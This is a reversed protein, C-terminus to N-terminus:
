PGPSTSCTTVDNSFQMPNGQNDVPQIRYYMCQASTYPLMTQTDFGRRPETAIIQTPHPAPGAYVQYYAVDTAGNWSYTLTVMQSEVKEVLMPPTTPTAHWSFRFARYTSNPAPMYMEFATSGDPKLETTVGATGWGIMRNGDPLIQVDGMALTYLDPTHRYQWVLTATMNREDVKYESAQSFYPQLGTRNDFLTIDGNPQRRVDHQYYFPPQNHDNIFTFQNHKGGMRWIIDGTQRNIKTIEALHRSSLLLNGDLDQQISNGHVYDVAPQTLDEYTDTIQFHDWSRWQFVVNKQSDLEQIVLGTVIAGPKGGPAVQSMDVYEPDYIMLLAHGNPLLRLDHLDAGNPYGNGATYTGVVNYSHDMAYFTGDTYYTLMGNPQLKFDAAMHDTRQYYVVHGAHDLILLYNNPGLPFPFSAVFFYGDEGADGPATVKLAPLDAPLSTQRLPPLASSDEPVPPITPRKLDLPGAPALPQLPAQRAYITFDFSVSDLTKGSTTQIGPDVVVTVTEGLAFPQQPKFIVTEQDDALIVSGAHAGSISGVVKFLNADISTPVLPEGQRIAITTGPTVFQSGPLPAVYQLGTTNAPVVLARPAPRDASIPVVILVLVLEASAVLLKSLNFKM